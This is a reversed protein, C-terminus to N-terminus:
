VRDTADAVPVMDNRGPLFALCLMLAVFGFSTFRFLVNSWLSVLIMNVVLLWIMMREPQRLSRAKVVITSVFAVFLMAYPVGREFILTFGLNEYDEWELKQSIYQLESFPSGFLSSIFSRDFMINGLVEWTDVRSSFTDTLAIYITINEIIVDLYYLLVGVAFLAIFQKVWRPFASLIFFFSIGNILISIMGFRSTNLLSAVGVLGMLVLLYKHKRDTSFYTYGFLLFYFPLQTGWHNHQGLMGSFTMQFPVNLQNFFFDIQLREKLELASYYELSKNATNWDYSNVLFDSSQLSEYVSFGLQFLFFIGIGATFKISISRRNEASMRSCYAVIGLAVPIGYHRALFSLLGYGERVLNLFGIIMFLVCIWFFFRLVIHESQRAHLMSTILFMAAIGYNILVVDLPLQFAILNLLLPGIFVALLWTLSPAATESAKIM